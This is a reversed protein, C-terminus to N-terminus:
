YAIQGDVTHSAVYDAWEADTYNYKMLRMGGFDYMVNYDETYYNVKYSLMYCATSQALIIRYNRSLYEKELAATIDLKVDFSENAFEGAGILCNSWEQFTMTVDEGKVNITFTETTPDWCAAEHIDYQSPDMYVQMNRFPYFAAGGWGGYGIAYEGAPVRGHRNKLNGIPTLTFTGFGSGEAADNLYQTLLLAQQNDSSDLAGAKYAMKITIPQGETYLGAAVLEECAQKMLAKAETLNYGTVSNYAEKLTAYIKGEGYEIGYLDVIAKMAQETNRYVSTPDEYINYFYLPSMLGYLPKFGGTAKVWDTRNIALSFAKRLKDNSLVVSNQNDKEDMAQLARVNTNFFLGMSYTEDVKYLQQSLTYASLEEAQPTWDDIDGSLFKLKAAEDTM